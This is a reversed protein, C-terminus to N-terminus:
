ELNDLFFNVSRINTFDWGGGDYIPPSDNITNAGFAFINGNQNQIQNDSNNDVRWVFDAFGRGERPFFDYFQNSYIRFDSENIFFNATTIESDPTLDLVESCASIIVTLSLIYIYLNKKM